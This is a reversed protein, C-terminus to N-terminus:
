TSSRRIKILTLLDEYLADHGTLRFILWRQGMGEVTNNYITRFQESMQGLLAETREKEKKGVVILVSFSGQEPYVRCLTRGSKAFKVNWGLLVKDGSYAIERLAKYESDMYECLESFLPNAIYRDIQESDPKRTKDTILDAM